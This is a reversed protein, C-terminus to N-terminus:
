FSKRVPLSKKRNMLLVEEKGLMVKQGYKTLFQINVFAAIYSACVSSRATTRPNKDLVRVLDVADRM